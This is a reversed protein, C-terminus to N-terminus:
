QMAKPVLQVASRSVPLSGCLMLDQRESTPVTLPLAVYSPNEQLLVNATSISNDCTYMEELTVYSPNVEMAIPSNYARAADNRGDIDTINSDTMHVETLAVYSPNVAMTFPSDYAHAADNHGDIINSDTMHVESLAMNYSPNVAMAIHSDDPDNCQTDIVNEESVGAYFYM